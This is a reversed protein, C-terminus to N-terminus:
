CDKAQERSDKLILSTSTRNSIQATRPSAPATVASTSTATTPMAASATVSSPWGTRHTAM